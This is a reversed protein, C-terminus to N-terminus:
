ESYMSTCHLRQNCKVVYGDIEVMPNEIDQLDFSRVIGISGDSMKVQKGLLELPMKSVFLSVLVSDLESATLKILQSMISFPSRPPKYARQSVMADYVDTIATIRAELSINAFPSSDPYGVGSIKEHHCRAGRRIQEPFKGLLEYSFVPHMKVVEFETVTLQRPANLVQAPILAKGCDHVLGILVLRDVDEKPLGLWRGFLGNLLSVNICHRQFYEDTPALANILSIVTSPSSVELRNSLESSVSHIAEHQVAQKKMIEDLLKATEDVIATYGTTEELERRNITDPLPLREILTRYTSGSVYITDRDSNLRKIREISEADLTTDAKAILLDAHADYIDEHVVMGDYLFSISVATLNSKNPDIEAM